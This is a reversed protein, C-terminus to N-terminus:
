PSRAVARNQRLGRQYTLIYQTIYDNADTCPWEGFGNWKMEEIAQHPSWGCYEMRYVAALISAVAFPGLSFLAAFICRCGGHKLFSM